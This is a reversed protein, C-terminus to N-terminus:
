KQLYLWTYRTMKRTAVKSDLEQMRSFKGGISARSYQSMDRIEKKSAGQKTLEEIEKQVKQMHQNVEKGITALEAKIKAAEQKSLDINVKSITISDGILLDLNGDGNWHPNAQL